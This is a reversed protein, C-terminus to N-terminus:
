AMAGATVKRLKAVELLWVCVARWAQSAAPTGARQDQAVLEGLEREVRIVEEVWPMTNSMSSFLGLFRNAAPVVRSTVLVILAMQAAIAGHSLGSAWLTVALALLALQGLLLLVAGPLLLWSTTSAAVRAAYRFIDAFQRSFQLEQGALKIDKIGSTANNAVM